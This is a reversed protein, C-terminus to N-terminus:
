LAARDAFVVAVREIVGHALEAWLSECPPNHKWQM